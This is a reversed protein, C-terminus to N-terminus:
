LHGVDGDDLEHMQMRPEDLGGALRKAVARVLRVAARIGDSVLRRDAWYELSIHLERDASCELGGAVFRLARQWLWHRSRLVPRLM